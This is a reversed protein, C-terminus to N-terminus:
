ALTYTTAVLFKGAATEMSRGRVRRVAMIVDV